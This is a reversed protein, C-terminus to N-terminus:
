MEGFTSGCRCVAATSVAGSAVTPRVITSLLIYSPRIYTSSSRGSIHINGSVTLWESRSTRTPHALLSAYCSPTM